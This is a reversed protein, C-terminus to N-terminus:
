FVEEQEVSFNLESAAQKFAPLQERMLVIRGSDVVCYDGEPMWADIFDVAQDTQGEVEAVNLESSHLITIDM